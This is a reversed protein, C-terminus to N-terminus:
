QFLIFLVGLLTREFLFQLLKGGVPRSVQNEPNVLLLHKCRGDQMGSLVFQNVQQGSARVLFDGDQRLLAEAQARSLQGLYWPEGVPELLAAAASLTQKTQSPALMATQASPFRGPKPLLASSALGIKGIGETKAADSSHIVTTPDTSSLSVSPWVISSSFAHADESRKPSSLVPRPSLSFEPIAPIPSAAFSSEGTQLLFFM